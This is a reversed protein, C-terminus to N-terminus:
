ASGAPGGTGPPSIDREAGGSGAPADQDYDEDPNGKGGANSGSGHVEGTRRDFSARKGRESAAPEPPQDKAEKKM